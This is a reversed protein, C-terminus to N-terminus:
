SKEREWVSCVSVANGQITEAFVSVLRWGASSMRDLDDQIKGADVHGYGLGGAGATKVVEYEHVRRGSRAAAAGRGDLDNSRRCLYRHEQPM